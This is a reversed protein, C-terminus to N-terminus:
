ETQSRNDAARVSTIEIHRDAGISTVRVGTHHSQIVHAGSGAQNPLGDGVGEGSALDWEEDPAATGHNGARHGTDSVDPSSCPESVEVAM